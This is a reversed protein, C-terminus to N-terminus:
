QKKLKIKMPKQTRVILLKVPASGAKKIEDFFHDTNSVKKGNLQQELDNDRWGSRAATSHSPIKVLQVGGDEKSVGFASFEEGELSHRTVGSWKPQKEKAAATAADAQKGAPSVHLEAAYSPRTLLGIALALVPKADMHCFRVIKSKM